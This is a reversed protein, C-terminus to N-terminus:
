IEEAFYKIGHEDLLHRVSKSHIARGVHLVQNRGAGRFGLPYHATNVQIGCILSDADTLPGGSQGKLGPSSTEIWTGVDRNDLRINVFRSVLAENVFMPIPFMNSFEFGKETTWVPRRDDVFPFGARCLLEGQEVDRVRFRPFVYDPPPTVNTLQGIGLDIAPHVHAKIADGSQRGFLCVYHTVDDRKLRRKSASAKVAQDLKHIQALTHGATIFWGDSNVFMGAGVGWDVKGRQLRWAIVVPQVTSLLSKCAEQFM